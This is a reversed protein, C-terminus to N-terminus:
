LSPKTFSLPFSQRTTYCSSNICVETYLPPKDGLLGQKSSIPQPAIPTKFIAANGKYSGNSCTSAADDSEEGYESLKDSLPLEMLASPGPQDGLLGRRGPVKTYLHATSHAHHQPPAAQPPLPLLPPQKSSMSQENTARLPQRYYPPPNQLLPAKQTGGAKMMASGPPSTMMMGGKMMTGGSQNNMMVGGKVQQLHQKIQNELFLALLTNAPGLNPLSSMSDQGGPPMDGLLGVKGQSPNQSSGSSQKGNSFIPASNPGNLLTQNPPGAKGPADGLLGPKHSLPADGLLGQRPSTQGASQPPPAAATTPHGAGQMMTLLQTLNNLMNINIDPLNPISLFPFGGSLPPGTAPTPLLPQAGSHQSTPPPPPPQSGPPQGGPPHQSFLGQLM